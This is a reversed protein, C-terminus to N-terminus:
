SNRIGCSSWDELLARVAGSYRAARTDVIDNLNHLEMRAWDPVHPGVANRDGRTFVKWRAEEESRNYYHNVVLREASPQPNCAGAVPRGNEDRTAHPPVCAANHSGIPGWQALCGRRAVLKGHRGFFHPAGPEGLAGRRTYNDITLGSPRRLHGNRGFVLWSVFLVPQDLAALAAPATPERLPFLYEDVDIYATRESLDDYHRLYHNFATIQPTAGFACPPRCVYPPRREAPWPIHTLWDHRAAVLRLLNATGDISDDDYLYFRDVGVLRHFALWELLYPSEDRVIACITLAPRM